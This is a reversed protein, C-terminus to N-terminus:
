MSVKVVLRVAPPQGQTGGGGTFRAAATARVLAVEVPPLLNETSEPGDAAVLNNELNTTASRSPPSVTTELMGVHADVM